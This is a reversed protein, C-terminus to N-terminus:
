ITWRLKSRQIGILGGRFGLVAGIFLIGGMKYGIGQIKSLGHHDIM